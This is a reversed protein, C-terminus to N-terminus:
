EHSHHTHQYFKCLTTRFNVSLFWANFRYCHLLLPSFLQQRCQEDKCHRLLYCEILSSFKTKYLMFKLPFPQTDSESNTFFTTQTVLAYSSIIYQLVIAFKPYENTCFKSFGEVNCHLKIKWLVLNAKSTTTSSNNNNKQFNADM